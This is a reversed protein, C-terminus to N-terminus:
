VFHIVSEDNILTDMGLALVASYYPLEADGIYGNWDFGLITISEGKGLMNELEQTALDKQWHYKGSEQIMVDIDNLREIVDAHMLNLQTDMDSSQTTKGKLKKIGELAGKLNKKSEEYVEYPKYMTLIRSILEVDEAQNKYTTIFKSFKEVSVVGTPYYKGDLDNVFNQLSDNASAELLDKAFTIPNKLDKITDTNDLKALLKNAYSDKILNNVITSHKINSKIDKIRSDIFEDLPTTQVLGNQLVKSFIPTNNTFKQSLCSVKTLEKLTFGNHFVIKEIQDLNKNYCDENKTSSNRDSLSIIESGPALVAANDHINAGYCSNILINLPLGNTAIKIEELLESGKTNVPLVPATWIQKAKEIEEKSANDNVLDSCLDTEEFTLTTTHTILQYIDEVKEGHMILIINIKEDKGDKKELYPRLADQLKKPEIGSLRDGFEIVEVYNSLTKPSFLCDESIRNKTSMENNDAGYIIFLKDKTSAKM